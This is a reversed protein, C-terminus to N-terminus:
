PPCHPQGFTGTAEALDGDKMHKLNNIGSARSEENLVKVSMASDIVRYRWSSTQGCRMRAMSRPERAKWTRCCQTSAMSTNRANNLRAALASFFPVCPRLRPLGEQLDCRLATISCRPLVCQRGSSGPSSSTFPALTVRPSCSLRHFTGSSM